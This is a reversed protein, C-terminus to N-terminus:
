PNLIRPPWSAPNLLGLAYAKVVLVERSPVDLKRLMVGIRYDVAQRSLYLRLAIRVTSEGAALGALIRADLEGLAVAPGDSGEGPARVPAAFLVLCPMEAPEALLRGTLDALFIRGGPGLGVLRDTFGAKQRHLLSVLGRRLPDRVAELFLEPVATGTVATGFLAAFASNSRTVVLDQDLVAMGALPRAVTDERLPSTVM